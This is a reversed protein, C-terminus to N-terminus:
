ISWPAYNGRWCLRRIVRRRREVWGQQEGEREHRAM